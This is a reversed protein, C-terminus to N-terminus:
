RRNRSLEELRGQMERIAQRLEMLEARMGNVDNQPGGREGVRGPGGDGRPGPAGPKPGEPQPGMEMRRALRDAVDHMGAAHLNEIAIKLHERQRERDPGGGGQPQGPRKGPQRRASRDKDMGPSSPEGRALEQEIKRIQAKIEAQKPETGASRLEELQALLKKHQGKLDERKRNDQPAPQEPGANEESRGAEARLAEAQNMLDRAEDHRGSAKLDRAKEELQRSKERQQDPQPTEQAQARAVGSLSAATILAVIAARTIIKLLDRIKM